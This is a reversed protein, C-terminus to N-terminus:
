PMTAPIVSDRRILGEAGEATIARCGELGRLAYGGEALVVIDAEPAAEGALPFCLDRDLLERGLRLLAELTAASAVPAPPQALDLRFVLLQWALEGATQRLEVRWAGCRAHWSGPATANFALTTEPVGPPLTISLRLHRLRKAARTERRRRLWLAAGFLPLPVLGLPAPSFSPGSMSGLLAGAGAAAVLLLSTRPRPGYQCRQPM